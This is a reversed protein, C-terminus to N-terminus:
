QLDMRALSLITEPESFRQPVCFNIASLAVPIM